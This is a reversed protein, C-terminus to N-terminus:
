DLATPAESPTVTVAVSLQHSAGGVIVGRLPSVDAFDRGWALCVYDDGPSHLGWRDNTPDLDVWRGPGTLQGAQEDPVYVSVWAHSADSGVLRPQGEPPRTLVYGSVYRAALGQTRLCSLLIHAFDQCVGRRQALSTLAPTHVDTSQATYTFDQHMRHMLDVASALVPRQPTFSARAYDAFDPHTQVHASAFTFETAADWAAGAHYVFHARVREWAPSRQLADAPLALRRTQVTACAHLQLQSHVAPLSFFTRVNGQVDVTDRRTAPAPDISLAAEIVTQTPTERPILYAMHQATSVPPVYDYTTTHEIQLRM